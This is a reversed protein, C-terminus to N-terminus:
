FPDGLGSDLAFGTSIPEERVQNYDRGVTQLLRQLSYCASCPGPYPPYIGVYVHVYTYIHIHVHTYVYIYVYTYTYMHICIYVYTYMHLSTYMSVYICM